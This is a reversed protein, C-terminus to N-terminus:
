AVRVALELETETARLVCLNGPTSPPAVDRFSAEVSKPGDIACRGPCDGGWEEFQWGDKASATLFIRGGEPALWECRSACPGSYELLAGEASV